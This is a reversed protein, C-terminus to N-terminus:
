CKPCRTNILIYPKHNNKGNTCKYYKSLIKAIKQKDQLYKQTTNHSFYIIITHSIMHVQIKDLYLQQLFSYKDYFIENLKNEIKKIEQNTKYTNDQTKNIKQISSLIDLIM